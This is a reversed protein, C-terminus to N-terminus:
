SFKNVTKTFVNPVIQSQFFVFNIFVTIRFNRLREKILNGSCINSIFENKNYNNTEIILVKLFYFLLICM